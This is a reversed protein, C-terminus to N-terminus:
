AVKVETEEAAANLEIGTVTSVDTEQMTVGITRDAAEVMPERLSVVIFQARDAFRRIRRAVREINVGDLHMDVEDFAYFPAPKYSQLALIFALAILTQEGGSRSRLDLMTKGRPQAKIRMGGAFPDEENELALSGKGDSLEAFIERFSRDVAKFADMFAERKMEECKDMRDLLEKRERDLKDRQERLENRRAELEAYDELARQNVPGMAKLREETVRLRAQLEEVPPLNAEDAEPGLSRIRELEAALAGAGTELQEMDRKLLEMDRERAHIEETFKALAAMAEERANRLKKTSAGVEDEKKRLEKLRGELEGIEARTKEIKGEVAAREKELREMEAEAERFASKAADAKLALREVDLAAAALAEERGRLVEQLKAAEGLAETVEGLEAELQKAEERASEERKALADRKARLEDLVRTGAGGEEELPRLVAAKREAEARVAALAAQLGEMEKEARATELEAASVQEKLGKLAQEVAAREEEAKRLREEASALTEQAERAKGLFRRPLAGVTVAGAREFLDGELSALRYRGVYPKASDFDEVFVTDGVAAWLAAELGPRISVLDMAAGVVGDGRPGPSRRPPELKSLPLLTARGPTGKKKLHNRAQAVDDLGEMVIWELRGGAAAELALAHRSDVEILDGVTGLVGGLERRRSADLVEAVAPSRGSGIASREMERRAELAKQAASAAAAELKNLKESLLAAEKVHRNREARAAESAQACARQREELSAVKQRLEEVERLLEGHEGTRRALSRVREDLERETRLREEELDRVARRLAELQAPKDVAESGESGDRGLKRRLADVEKKKEKRVADAAELDTSARATEEKKMSIILSRRHVEGEIEAIRKEMEEIATKKASSEQLVEEVSERLKRLTADESDHLEKELRDLEEQLGAREQRLKEGEAALKEREKAKKLAEERNRALEAQLHSRQAARLLAETRELEDSLGKYTAAKEREVQLLGMQEEWVSVRADVEKLREKVVVLEEKAKERREDFEAVGAIEDIMRRRDVDGLRVVANIEGQMVVNHGEPAINVKLLKERVESLTLREDNWAFVSSPQDKSDLKVRRTIKIEPEPGLAGDSNDFTLTVETSDGSRGGKSKHIFGSLDEARLKRTSALGLVFNIGDIINSKGSGNPGTVTTFGPQFPVRTRVFTKFNRFEIEKIYM